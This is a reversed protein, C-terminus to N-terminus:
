RHPVVDLVQHQFANENKMSSSRASISAASRRTWEVAGSTALRDVSLVLGFVSRTEIFVEHRNSISQGLTSVIYM